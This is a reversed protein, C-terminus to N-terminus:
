KLVTRNSRGVGSPSVMSNQSAVRSSRRRM